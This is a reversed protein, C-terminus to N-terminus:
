SLEAFNKQCEDSTWQEILISSESNIAAETTKLSFLNLQKKTAQLSQRSGKSITSLMAKFEDHYKEPWCLRTVLGRRVADDAPIKNTTYLLESALGRNPLHPFTLLYAAEVTCGLSSNCTSFTATDSAIVMDFLPLMTVGLGVCDGQIGAVLVKPFNLLCKLFDKLYGSLEVAKKKRLDPSDAVLSKYDLGLCFSKSSSTISVVNCDKDKSFQKFAQILEKLVQITCYSYENIYHLDMSILKGTKKITFSKYSGTKEIVEEVVEPKSVESQQVTTDPEKPSKKIKKIKPNEGETNLKKQSKADDLEEDELDEVSSISSSSRRRILRSSEQYSYAPSAPPTQISSRTSDKSKKRQQADPTVAVRNVPAAIAPAEKKRLSKPTESETNSQLDNKIENARKIMEKNAKDLNITKKNKRTEGGEENKVDYLMNVAGEDMLLKDIESLRKKQSPSKKPTTVIKHDANPQTKEKVKKVVKDPVKSEPVKELKKETKKLPSRSDTKKDAVTPGESSEDGVVKENKVSVPETKVKVLTRAPAGDPDWIVKKKIVRSSKTIYVNTPTDKELKIQKNERKKEAPPNSEDDFSAMKVASSEYTSDTEMSKRKRSYTKLVMNVKVQPEVEMTDEVLTDSKSFINPTQDIVYSDQEQVPNESLPVDNIEVQERIVEIQPNPVRQNIGGKSIFRVTPALNPLEQLQQLAIERELMKLNEDVVEESETQNNQKVQKGEVETKVHTEQSVDDGELIALLDSNDNIKNQSTQSNKKAKPTAAPSILKKALRSTLRRAFMLDSKQEQKVKSRAMIEKQLEEKSVIQSQLNKCPIKVGLRPKNGNVPDVPSKIDVGLVHSPVSIANVGTKVRRQISKRPKPKPKEPEQTEPEEYTQILLIEEQADNSIEITHQGDFQANHSIEGSVTTVEIEGPINYGELTIRESDSPFQIIKIDTEQPQIEHSVYSTGSSMDTDNTTESEVSTSYEVSECYSDVSECIIDNQDTTDMKMQESEEYVIKQTNDIDEDVDSVMLVETGNKVDAQEANQLFNKHDNEGEVSQNNEVVAEQFVDADEVTTGTNSGNSCSVESTEASTQSNGDIVLENRSGSSQLSNEESVTNECQERTQPNPADMQVSTEDAVQTVIDDIEKTDSINTESEVQNEEQSKSKVAVADPIQIDSSEEQGVVNTSLLYNDTPTTDQYQSGAQAEQIYQSVFTEQDADTSSLYETNTQLQDSVFSTQTTDVVQAPEYTISPDSSQVTINTTNTISDNTTVLCYETTTQVIYNGETVIAADPQIYTVNDESLTNDYNININDIITESGYPNSEKESAYEVNANSAISDQKLSVDSAYSVQPSLSSSTPDILNNEM